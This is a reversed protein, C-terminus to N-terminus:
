APSGNMIPMNIGAAIEDAIEQFAFAIRDEPQELKYGMLLETRDIRYRLRARMSYRKAGEFPVVAIKFVEPIELEGRQGAKAASEETYILKRTGSQLRTGSEFRGKTSAQISQAIELMTAADPEVLDPLHSELFEAFEEQRLLRGDTATWEQWTKTKRLSLGLRHGGWRAADATNADLVATISLAEVDSYVETDDDHHKAFYALFGKVDRVVTVGSKRTPTAKYKDGTLDITQVRGSSDTVLYIGGLEVAHPVTAQQAAAIIARVGDETQDSM